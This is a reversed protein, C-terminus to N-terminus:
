NLLKVATITGATVNLNVVGLTSKATLNIITGADFSVGQVTGTFASSLILSLSYLGAPISAAGVTYVQTEVNQVASAPASSEIEQLLLENYVDTNNVSNETNTVSARVSVAKSQFNM